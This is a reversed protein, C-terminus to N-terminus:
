DYMQYHLFCYDQLVSLICTIYNTVNILDYTHSSLVEKLHPGTDGWTMQGSQEAGTVTKLPFSINANHM